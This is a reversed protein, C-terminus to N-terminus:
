RFQTDDLKNYGIGKIVSHIVGTESSWYQIHMSEGTEFRQLGDPNYETEYEKQNTAETRHLIREEDDNYKNTTNEQECSVM